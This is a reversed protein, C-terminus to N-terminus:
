QASKKRTPKRRRPKRPPPAVPAPWGDRRIRAGVERLTKADGEHVSGDALSSTRLWERRTLTYEM